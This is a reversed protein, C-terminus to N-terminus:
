DRFEFHYDRSEQHYECFEDEPMYMKELLQIYYEKRYQGLLENYQKRYERGYFFLYYDVYDETPTHVALMEAAINAHIHAEALAKLHAYHIDKKLCLELCILCDVEQHTSMRSFVRPTVGVGTVIIEPCAPGILDTWLM